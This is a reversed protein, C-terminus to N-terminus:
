KPFCVSIAGLGEAKRVLKVIFGINEREPTLLPSLCSMVITWFRPPLFSLFFLLYSLFLNDTGKEKKGMAGKRLVRTNKYFRNSQLKYLM